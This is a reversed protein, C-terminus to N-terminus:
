WSSDRIPVKICALTIEECVCFGYGVIVLLECFLEKGIFLDSGHLVALMCVRPSRAALYLAVHLRTQNDQEWKVEGRQASPVGRVGVRNGETHSLNTEKDTLVHAILKVLLDFDKSTECWSGATPALIHGEKGYTLLKGELKM